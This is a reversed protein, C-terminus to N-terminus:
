RQRVFPQFCRIHGVNLIHVTALQSSTHKASLAGAHNIGEWCVGMEWFKANIRFSSVLVFKWHKMKRTIRKTVWAHREFTNYSGIFVCNAHFFFFGDCKPIALLTSFFPFALTPASRPSEGRDRTGVLGSSRCCSSPHRTARVCSKAISENSHAGSHVQFGKEFEHRKVTSRAPMDWCKGTGGM